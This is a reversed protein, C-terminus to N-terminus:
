KKVVYNELALLLIVLLLVTSRFADNSEVSSLVKSKQKFKWATLIVPTGPLVTVM